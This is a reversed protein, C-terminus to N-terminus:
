QPTEEAAGAREACPPPGFVQEEEKGSGSDWFHVLLEMWVQKQSSSIENMFLLWVVSVAQSPISPLRVKMSLQSAFVISHQPTRCCFLDYKIIVLLAM